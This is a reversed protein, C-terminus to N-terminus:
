DEKRKDSVLVSVGAIEVQSDDKFRLSPREPLHEISRAVDANLNHWADTLSVLSIWEGSIDSPMIPKGRKNSGRIVTVNLLKVRFNAERDKPNDPTFDFEPIDDFAIPMVSDDWESHAHGASGKSTKRYWESEIPASVGVARLFERVLRVAEAKASMPRLRPGRERKSKEAYAERAVVYRELWARERSSM